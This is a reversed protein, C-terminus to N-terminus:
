RTHDWRDVTTPVEDADWVEAQGSVTITHIRRGHRGEIADIRNEAVWSVDRNVSRGPLYLNTNPYSVQHVNMTYSGSCFLLFKQEPQRISIISTRESIGCITRNLGYAGYLYSRLDARSGPDFLPHPHIPRGAVIPPVKPLYQGEVLQYGWSANRDNPDYMLPLKGGDDTAKQVMAVHLQRLHSICAIGKARERFRSSAQLLLVAVVALLVMAILLEALTAAAARGSPPSPPHTLM